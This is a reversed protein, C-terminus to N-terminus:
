FAQGISVYVNITAEGPRRNIPTAVDLRMPGFNTYFRGGIGVGYRIDNFQPMIERYAQGADVFAVVGYNGFRYRAEVSAENLSRGGVPKGDAAQEGLGQYSYGRVSGGGGAYLRRSPAIETLSVGQITGLTVRGALVFSDGFPHYLSGDIRARLYPDFGRNLTAEPQILTTLRFGKTPNLLSDSTDIGLQGNLGAVFYTKRERTGTAAVYATEATGILEVGYAYTYRKQWIPTSDRSVRASLQGTYASYADYENHYGEVTLELARDRKGANSRKFTTSLGQQQTGATGAVSLAGEPPFLNRHTWSAEVTIGQGAAYGLSGAVTRPPGADQNIHLRVYEAGDGADEGTKEPEVSVTAFLSTGILAKRLDDVKRSDYLDGRKFRALVEIHRADFATDGDTRFGDFRSRPGTTIPLTYVGQGTDQDLLIDRQGIEVFPYGNQPLAVAVQAEAAQVREAVIPEGVKLGFNDAILTPPVTPGANLVIDSLIYRTGPTVSIRATLTDDDASQSPALRTRIRPSYWGESALITRLLQADEGLRASVMAANVAKGKGDKLTSLADFRGQMDSAAEKDLADLGELSLVYRVQAGENGTDKEAFEVPTVEFSDLPPLPADLEADRVPADGIIEGGAGDALAESGLPADEGAPPTAGPQEQALRREFEELSELPKDLEADDEADLEPVRAIFERDTIVPEVAPLVAGEPVPPIDLAGPQLDAGLHGADVADEQGDTASAEAARAEKDLSTDQARSPFAQFLAMTLSLLACGCRIARAHSSVTYNCNTDVPWNM